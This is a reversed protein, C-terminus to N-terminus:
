SNSHWCRFGFLEQLTDDEPIHRRTTLQTAVSTESSCLAEMKLTSSLGAFWRALLHSCLPSCPTMDWFVIRKMVVATFVEFGVIVRGELPVILSIQILLFCLAYSGYTLNSREYCGHRVIIIYKLLSM